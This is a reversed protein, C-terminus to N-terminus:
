TSEEPDTPVTPAHPAIMTLVAIALFGTLAMGPITLYGFHEVWTFSCPNSPDCSSSEITPYRQVLLHYVSVVSGIATIPVVYRRVLRDGTLVAVALVVVLPYMAIRQYWCLTCPTFDAGESLYLSGATSVIAVALAMPLALPGILDLTADGVRALVPVRRGLRCVIAFVVGVQTVLALLAFFLTVTDTSM